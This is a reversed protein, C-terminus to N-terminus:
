GFSRAPSRRTAGSDAARQRPHAHGAGGRQCRAAARVAGEAACFEKRMQETYDGVVGSARTRRHPRTSFWEGGCLGEIQVGPSPRTRRMWRQSRRRSTPPLRLRGHRQRRAAGEDHTQTPDSINQLCPGVEPHAAVPRSLYWRVIVKTPPAAQHPGHDAPHRARHRRKTSRRPRRQAPHGAAQARGRPGARDARRDRQQESLGQNNLNM